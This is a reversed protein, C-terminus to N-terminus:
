QENTKAAIVVGRQLRIEVPTQVFWDHDQRLRGYINAPGHATVNGYPPVEILAIREGAVAREEYLPLEKQCARCEHRHLVVLWDGSSLDIDISNAIPLKQGVWAEPELVVLGGASDPRRNTLAARSSTYRFLFVASVVVLCTVVAVARQRKPQKTVLPEGSGGDRIPAFLGELLVSSCLGLFVLVDMSFTWWPNMQVPGFCSCSTAGSMALHFSYAAFAAFLALAGWRLTRWYVGLLFISGVALEGGIQLVPLLNHGLPSRLAAAPDTMIQVTKLVAAIVLFLGAAWRM